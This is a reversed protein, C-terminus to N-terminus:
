VFPTGSDQLDISNGDDNMMDVRDAAPQPYKIYADCCKICSIFLNSKKNM